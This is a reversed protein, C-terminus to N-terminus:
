VHHSMSRLGYYKLLKAVATETSIQDEAVQECLSIAEDSPHLKEIALTSLCYQIQKSVEKTMVFVGKMHITYIIKLPFAVQRIKREISIYLQLRLSAFVAALVTVADGVCVESAFRGAPAYTACWLNEDLDAFPM